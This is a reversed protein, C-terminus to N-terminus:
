WDKINQLFKILAMQQVEQEVSITASAHPSFSLIASYILVPGALLTLHIGKWLSSSFKYAKHKQDKVTSM